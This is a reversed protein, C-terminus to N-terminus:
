GGAGGKRLEALLWARAYAWYSDATRPSVLRYHAIVRGVLSGDGYGLLSRAAAAVAPQELFSEGQEYSAILSEVEGRLERDDACARDLFAAREGPARELAAKFLEDVQQWREPTM